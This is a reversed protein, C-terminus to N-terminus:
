EQLHLRWDIVDSNNFTRLNNSPFENYLSYYIWRRLTSVRGYIRVATLHNARDTAHYYGLDDIWILDKNLLYKIITSSRM